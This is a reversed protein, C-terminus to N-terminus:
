CLDDNVMHIAQRRARRILTDWLEQESLQPKIRRTKGKPKPKPLNKSVRRKM